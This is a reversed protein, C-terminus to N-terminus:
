PVSHVQLRPKDGFTKSAHPPVYCASSRLSESHSAPRAQPPRIHGAKARRYSIRSRPYQTRLRSTGQPRDSVQSYSGKRRRIRAQFCPRRRRSSSLSADSKVLDFAVDSGEEAMVRLLVIEDM